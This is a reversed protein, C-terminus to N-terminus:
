NMRDRITQLETPTLADLRDLIVQETVSLETAAERPCETWRFADLLGDLSVLRRAAQVRVTWEVDPEQRGEHGYEVHVLEHALACRLETRLLERHLWITSHGDTAGQIGDPLDTRHVTIHELDTVHSWPSYEGM